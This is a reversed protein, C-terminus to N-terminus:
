VVSQVAECNYREDHNNRVIIAKREVKLRSECFIDILRDNLIISFVTADYLVVCVISLFWTCFDSSSIRSLDQWKKFCVPSSFCCTKWRTKEVLKGSFVLYIGEINLVLPM